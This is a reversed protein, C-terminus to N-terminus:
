AVVGLSQLFAEETSPLPSTNRLQNQMARYAPEALFTDRKARHLAVAENHLAGIEPDSQM